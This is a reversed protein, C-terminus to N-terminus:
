KTERYIATEIMVWDDNVFLRKRLGQAPQDIVFPEFPHGSDRTDLVKPNVSGAVFARRAETETWNTSAVKCISEFKGRSSRSFQEIVIFTKAPQKMQILTVNEPHNRSDETYMISPIQTRSSIRGREPTLQLQGDVCAERYVELVPGATNSASASAALLLWQLM